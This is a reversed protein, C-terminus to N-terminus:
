KYPLGSKIDIKGVEREKYWKTVKLDLTNGEYLSIYDNRTLEGPYGKCKYVEHDGCDLYYVKPMEKLMESPNSSIEETISLSKYNKM